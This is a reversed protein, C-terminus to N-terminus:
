DTTKTYKLIIRTLSIHTNRYHMINVKGSNYTVTLPYWTNDNSSGNAYFVVGFPIGTIQTDIWGNAAGSINVNFSNEYVPKGNFTEGTKHEETLEVTKKNLVGKILSIVWDKTAFIGTGAM